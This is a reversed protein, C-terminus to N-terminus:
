GRAKKQIYACSAGAIIMPQRPRLTSALVRPRQTRGIGARYGRVAMWDRQRARSAICRLHLTIIVFPEGRRVSGAGMKGVDREM